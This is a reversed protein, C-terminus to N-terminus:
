LRIGKLSVRVEQAATSTLEIRYEDWGAEGFTFRQTSNAPADFTTQAIVRFDHFAQGSPDTARALVRITVPAAGRKNLILILQEYQQVNTLTAQTPNVSGLLDRAATDATLINFLLFVLRSASNSQVPPAVPELRRAFSVSGLGALVIIGISWGLFRVILRNGRM